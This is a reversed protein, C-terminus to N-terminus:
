VLVRKDLRNSTENSRNEFRLCFDPGEQGSGSGSYDKVEMEQNDVAGSASVSIGKFRFDSPIERRRELIGTAVRGEVESSFPAM